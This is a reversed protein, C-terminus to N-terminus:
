ASNALRMMEEYRRSVKSLCQRVAPSSSFALVQDTQREFIECGKRGGRKRVLLLDFREQNTMTEIVEWFWEIM